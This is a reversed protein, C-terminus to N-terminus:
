RKSFQPARRAGKLGYKKREKVRADRTLMGATKLQGRLEDNAIVLARAIGHRVADAQAQKGGGRVKVEMGYDDITSTVELPGLCVKQMAVTPFYEEIKIGNVVRSDGKEILRVQAVASKRRGVGHAKDTEKEKNM